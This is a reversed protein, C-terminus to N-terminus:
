EQKFIHLTNTVNTTSYGSLGLNNDISGFYIACVYMYRAPDTVRIFDEM